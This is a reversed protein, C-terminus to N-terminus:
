RPLKREFISLSDPLEEKKLVKVIERTAPYLYVHNVTFGIVDSKDAERLIQEIDNIAHDYFLMHVQHAHRIVERLIGIGIPLSCKERMDYDPISWKGANLPSPSVLLVRM